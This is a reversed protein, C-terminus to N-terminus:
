VRPLPSESITRGAFMRAILITVPWAEPLGSLSDIRWKGRLTFWFLVACRKSDHEVALRSEM